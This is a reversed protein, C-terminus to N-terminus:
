KLTKVAVPPKFRVNEFSKLKSNPRSGGDTLYLSFGDFLNRSANQLLHILLNPMTFETEPKASKETFKEAFCTLKNVEDDYLECGILLATFDFHDSIIGLVCLLNFSDLKRSILMLKM